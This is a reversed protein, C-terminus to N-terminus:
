SRVKKLQTAQDIMETTYEMFDNLSDTGYHKGEMMHLFLDHQVSLLEKLEDVLDNKPLVDLIECASNCACFAALFHPEILLM